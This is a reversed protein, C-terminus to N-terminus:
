KGFGKKRQFIIPGEDESEDLSKDVPKELEPQETGKAEQHIDISEQKHEAKAGAGDVDAIEDSDTSEGDGDDDVFFDSLEDLDVAEGRMEEMKKEMAEQEQAWYKRVQALRADRSQIKRKARDLRVRCRRAEAELTSIKSDRSRIEAAHTELMRAVEKRKIENYALWEDFMDDTNQVYLAENQLLMRELAANQNDAETASQMLTDVASLADRLQATGGAYRDKDKATAAAQRKKEGEGKMRKLAAGMNALRPKKVPMCVNRSAEEDEKRKLAAGQELADLERTMIKNSSTYTPPLGPDTWAPTKKGGSLGKITETGPGNYEAGWSDRKSSIKGQPDFDWPWNQALKIRAISNRSSAAWHALHGVQDDHLRVYFPPLNNKTLQGDPICGNWPRAYSRTQGVLIAQGDMNEVGLRDSVLQPPITSIKSIMIPVHHHMTSTPTPTIM